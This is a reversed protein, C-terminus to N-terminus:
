NIMVMGGKITAQTSGNVETMSAKASFKTKGEFAVNMGEGKMTANTKLQIDSNAEMTIKGKAKVIFDKETEISIGAKSLTIKNKNKDSVIIQAEKDSIKISNKDPTVIEIVKDKDDFRITLKSKTVIAKIKNEKDPSFPPSNKSSYLMGMIIPHQPDENLFGVVVEDNIEPYFFIGADKTAYFNALRAWICFNDKQLIPFSVKIRYQGDKDENIQKVLGIALGKFPAVLGSSSPADVMTTGETYWEFKAGFYATTKWEGLEVTHEVASVFATGNFYNSLGSLKLLTAPEIKSNGSFEVKGKLKSLSSKLHKAAAWAALADMPMNVSSQLIFEKCGIVKSLEAIKQNGVQLEDTSKSFSKALKQNAVDWSISTISQYQNKSDIDASFSIMNKGYAVELPALGSFIPKKAMLTGNNTTVILGSTEARMMIFDWDSCYHQVMENHVVKTEEIEKKLNYSKLIEVIIESDKKKGFISSKRGATLSIAEDRCEISIISNNKNLKLGHATIIGKFVTKNEDNYGLKIEVKKGPTFENSNSVNFVNNIIENEHVTFKCLSIKNIEKNIYIQKVRFSTDLQQNDLLISFSLFNGLQPNVAESM